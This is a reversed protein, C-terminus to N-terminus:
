PGVRPDGKSGLLFAAPKRGGQYRLVWDYAKGDEVAYNCLLLPSVPREVEPFPKAQLDFLGKEGSTIHVVFVGPRCVKLFQPSGDQAGDETENKACPTSLGGESESPEQTALAKGDFDQVSM